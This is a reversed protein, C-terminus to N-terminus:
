LVPLIIIPPPCILGCAPPDGVLCDSILIFGARVRRYLMGVAGGRRASTRPSSTQVGEPFGWTSLSPNKEALQAAKVPTRARLRFGSRLSPDAKFRKGLERRFYLGVM